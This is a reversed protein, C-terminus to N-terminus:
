SQPIKLVELLKSAQAPTLIYTRDESINKLTNGSLQYQTTEGQHSIVTINYPIATAYIFDEHAEYKTTEGKYSSPASPTATCLNLQDSIQLLDTTDTYDASFGNGSVTIKVISCTLSASNEVGMAPEVAAPDRAAQPPSFVGWLALCLVLPVCVLLIHKRRQKRENIRKESRRFVEAQCEALNRM